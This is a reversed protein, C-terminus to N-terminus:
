SQVRQVVLKKGDLSVKGLPINIDHDFAMTVNDGIIEPLKARKVAMSQLPDLDTAPIYPVALHHSTCFIDAYYYVKQGESEMELAFHGDTHGGTFVARIGPFLESDADILELQGSDKLAESREPLYVARTRENPNTAAKLEEKGVIYTANRFRPVFQGDDLKVAGGAHDTHLHTLIVYDIDDPSLGLSLLGSELSSEGQPSYVKKERESLTDGLGIDFVIKKGHARLVFLNAKMDILNNEDPPIMKQWMSRPVVGFMAGGDLKFHHEVFTDIEFRGFKM